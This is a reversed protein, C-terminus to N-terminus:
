TIVSNTVFLPCLTVPLLLGYGHAIHHPQAANPREGGFRGGIYRSTHLQPVVYVATANHTISTLGIASIVLVM